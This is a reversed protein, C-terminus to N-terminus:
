LDVNLEFRIENLMKAIVLFDPRKSVDQDWCACILKQIALPVNDEKEFKPREGQVAVKMLLQTAGIVKGFPIRGCWLEWCVIAYSYVDSRPEYKQENMVEPAMTVLSGTLGRGHGPVLSAQTSSYKSLGFDIITGKFSDDNQQEVLINASKLDRHLVIPDRGHLYLMGRAIDQTLLLKQRTNLCMQEKGHLVEYLSGGDILESVICLPYKANVCAGMYLLLNPHRISTLLSVEQLFRDRNHSMDAGTEDEYISQGLDPNRGNAMSDFEPEFSEGNELYNDDGCGNFDSSVSPSHISGSVRPTGDSNLVLRPGSKFVKVAVPSDLWRCKWVVAFSGSGIQKEFVLSRFDIEFGGIATETVSRKHTMKSSTPTSSNTDPTGFQGISQPQSRPTQDFEGSSDPQVMANNQVHVHSSITPPLLNPTSACVSASSQGPNSSMSESGKDGFGLNDLLEKESEGRLRAVGRATDFCLTDMWTKVVPDTACWKVFDEFGIKGDGDMDHEHVTKKALENLVSPDITRLASLSQADLSDSARFDRSTAYSGMVRLVQKVEDASLHGSGDKDYMTFLYRLRDEETGRTLVAMGTVFEKLNLSQESSHFLSYAFNFLPTHISIPSDPVELISSFLEYFQTRSLFGKGEEDLQHFRQKLAALEAYDVKVNIPGPSSAYDSLSPRSITPSNSPTLDSPHPFAAIRVRPESSPSPNASPISSSSESVASPAIISTSPAFDPLPTCFHRVGHEGLNISDISAAANELEESALSLGSRGVRALESWRQRADNFDNSLSVRPSASTRPTPSLNAPASSSATPSPPKRSFHGSNRQRPVPPPRTESPSSSRRRGGIFRMM